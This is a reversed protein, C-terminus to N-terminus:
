TRTTDRRAAGRVHFDDAQAIPADCARQLSKFNGTRASTHELKWPGWTFHSARSRGATGRTLFEILQRAHLQFAEIVANRVVIGEHELSQVARDVARTEFYRALACFMEIECLVHKSEAHLAENTSRATTVTAASPGTDGFPAARPWRRHGTPYLGVLHRSTRM